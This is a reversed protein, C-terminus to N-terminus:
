SQEQARRLPISPRGDINPPLSALLGADRGGQRLRKGRAGLGRATEAILVKDIDSGLVDIAARGALPESKAERALFIGLHQAAIPGGGALATCQFRLARGARLAPDRAPFVFGNKLPHLGPEIPIRVPHPHTTPRRFMGEARDLRPHSRRM